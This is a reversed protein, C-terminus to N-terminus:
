DTSRPSPLRSFGTGVREVYTSLDLNVLDMAKMTSAISSPDFASFSKALAHVGAPLTSSEILRDVLGIELAEAASVASEELYLNKAKAHGILRALFWPTATGPETRRTLTKNVFTASAGCVRYKSALLLGLLDFDVVGDCVGITIASITRLYDLIRHLSAEAVALIAPRGRGGIPAHDVPAAAAESWFADVLDPSLYDRPMQFVVVNKGRMKLQELVQWTAIMADRDAIFLRSCPKFEVVVFDGHDHLEVLSDDM